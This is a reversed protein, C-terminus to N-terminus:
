AFHFSETPEAFHELMNCFTVFGGTDDQVGFQVTRILNVSNEWISEPLCNKSIRSRSSLPKLLASFSSFRLFAIDGLLRSEM